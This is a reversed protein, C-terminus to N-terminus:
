TRPQTYSHQLQQGQVLLLLDRFWLIKMLFINQEGCNKGLHQLSCTPFHQSFCWACYVPFPQM